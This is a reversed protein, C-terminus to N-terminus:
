KDSRTEYEIYTDRIINDAPKEPEANSGMSKDFSIRNIRIKTNPRYKSTDFFCSISYEIAWKELKEDNLFAGSNPFSFAVKKEGSIKRVTSISLGIEEAQCEDSITSFKFHNHSHSGITFGRNKLCLLDYESFYPANKKLIEDEDIEIINAIKKLTDDTSYNRVSKIEKLLDGKYNERIPMNLERALKKLQSIKITKMKEIIISKLHPLLIKKNNITSSAVFFTAPFSRKLLFDVVNQYNECHGDDFSLYLPYEPLPCGNEINNEIDVLSVPNFNKLFFEIDEKFKEYSRPRYLNKVLISPRESVIHYFVSTLRNKLFPKIKSFEM